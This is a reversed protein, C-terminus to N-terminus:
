RGMDDRPCTGSYGMLVLGRSLCYQSALYLAGRGAGISEAARSGSRGMEDGRVGFGRWEVEGCGRCADGAVDFDGAPRIVLARLAFSDCGVLGLGALM